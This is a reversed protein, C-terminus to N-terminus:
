VQTGPRPKNMKDRQELSVPRGVVPRGPSVPRYSTSSTRVRRIVLLPIFCRIPNPSISRPRSFSKARKIVGGGQHLDVGGQRLDVGGQGVGQRQNVIVPCQQPPQFNFIRLGYCNQKANDHVFGFGFRLSRRMM